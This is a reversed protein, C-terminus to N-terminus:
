FDFAWSILVVVAVIGVVAFFAKLSFDIFIMIIFIYVALQILLKISDIIKDMIKLTKRKEYIM